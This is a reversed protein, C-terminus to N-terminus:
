LQATVALGLARRACGARPARSGPLQRAATGPPALPAAAVRRVGRDQGAASPTARRERRQCQSLLRLDPRDGEDGGEAEHELNAGSARSRRSSATARSSRASRRAQRRALRDPVHLPLVPQRQALGSNAMSCAKAWTACGSTRTRLSAATSRKGGTGNHNTFDGGQCMFNPIVRHFGSSMFGLRRRHVARPLERRDQPGPGGQAWKSAASRRAGIVIDFYVVPNSASAPGLPPTYSAEAAEDAVTAGKSSLAGMKRSSRPEAFIQFRFRM